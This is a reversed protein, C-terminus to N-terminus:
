GHRTTPAATPKIRPPRPLFAPTNAIYDRYAPRREAIDQELLAVGSVKLLLFTMLAPCVILWAAQAPSAALAVLWVGWWMCAEGFYNPHRSWAWLGQDMVRGKHEPKAKFRAMQADAVAEILLGATGLLLGLADLWNLSGHATLALGLPWALVWALMTQLGFVIYISKFAFGPDNRTRMAQYRRDEGHGWNRWTIFGGLRVAWALVLLGVCWARASHPNTLGENRFLYSGAALVFFIPWIRDALSADKLPLSIAWTLLGLACLPLLSWLTGTAWPLTDALEALM